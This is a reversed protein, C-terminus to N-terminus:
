VGVKFYRSGYKDVLRVFVDNFAKVKNELHFHGPIRLTVITVCIKSQDYSDLFAFWTFMGKFPSNDYDNKADELYKVISPSNRVADIANSDWGGCECHLADASKPTEWRLKSYHKLRKKANKIRKNVLKKCQKLKSKNNQLEKICTEKAYENLQILTNLTHCAANLKDAPLPRRIGVVVRTYKPKKM